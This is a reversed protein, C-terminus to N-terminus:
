ENTTEKRFNDSMIEFSIGQRFEQGEHSTGKPATYVDDAKFAVILHTECQELIGLIELADLEEAGDDGGWTRRKLEWWDDFKDVDPNCGEAYAQDIVFAFGRGTAGARPKTNAFYVGDSGVITLKGETQNAVRLVENKKFKLIDPETYYVETPDVRDWSKLIDPETHKGHTEKSM